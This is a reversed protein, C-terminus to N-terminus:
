RRWRKRMVAAGALGSGFLLLTAPEPVVSVVGVEKDFAIPFGGSDLLLVNDLTIPSTGFALADFTVSALTGTGTVGPIPGLLTDLTFTISGAANDITGPIFFTAGGSPLFAGEDLNTAALITPDFALDFQFLFLDTVEAIVVDASFTIGLGVVISSPAISLIPAAFAVSAHLAFGLVMAMTAVTRKRLCKKM